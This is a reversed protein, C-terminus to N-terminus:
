NTQRMYIYAMKYNFVTQQDNLYLLKAVTVECCHGLVSLFFTKEPVDCIYSILLVAYM